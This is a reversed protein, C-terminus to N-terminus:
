RDLRAKCRIGSDPDEWVLSLEVQGNDCLYQVARDNNALSERIGCIREYEAESVIQKSGNAAEYEAVRQKYAATAKPNAYQSGDERRVEDEFPPMVVLSEPQLVGAHVLSGFRMSETPEDVPTQEALHFHAMSRVAHSLLTNNVCPWALYEEFSVDLYIGPDIEDSPKPAPKTQSSRRGNGAARRKRANANRKPKVTGFIADWREARISTYTM